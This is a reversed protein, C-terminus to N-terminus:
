QVRFDLTVVLNMSYFFVGFVKLVMASVLVMFKDDKWSYLVSDSLDLTIPASNHTQHLSFLHGPCQRKWYKPPPSPPPNSHGAGLQMGIGTVSIFYYVVISRNFDGLIIFGLSLNQLASVM